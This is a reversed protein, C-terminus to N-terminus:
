SPPPASDVSKKELLTESAAPPPLEIAEPADEAHDPVEPEILPDAGPSIGLRVATGPGLRDLGDKAGDSSRMSKDVMDVLNNLGLARGQEIDAELNDFDEMNIISTGGQGKNLGLIIAHLRHAILKSDLAKIQVRAIATLARAKAIPIWNKYVGYNVRSLFNMIDQATKFYFNGQTLNEFQSIEEDMIRRALNGARKEKWWMLHERCFPTAQSWREKICIEEKTPLDIFRCRGWGLEPRDKAVVVDGAPNKTVFGDVGPVARAEYDSAKLEKLAVDLDKHVDEPSRAVARGNIKTVPIGIEKSLGDKRNSPLEPKVSGDKREVFTRANPPSCTYCYARSRSNTTFESSCSSCIKKWPRRALDISGGGLWREKHGNRDFVRDLGTWSIGVEKAVVAMSVRGEWYRTWAAEVDFLVRPKTGGHRRRESHGAKDFRRDLESDSIGFELGVAKLTGGDAWYKKWAAEVDFVPKKPM